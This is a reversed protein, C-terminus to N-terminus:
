SGTAPPEASNKEVAKPDLLAAQADMYGRVLAAEFGDWDECLERVTAPAYLIAQGTKDKFDWDVLTAALFQEDSIPEAALDAEIETRERATFVSDQDDLQKRIVVRLDPTLRNARLRRDLARRESTKLRKYRARGQVTEPQGDDGLLRNTVPAWFAVSALVVTM